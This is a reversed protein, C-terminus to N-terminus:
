VTESLAVLKANPFVKKIEVFGFYHDPHSHTVYVTTLNKGTQKITDVLRRADSLTFQADILIADKDGYILTSTVQFGEPSATYVKWQLKSQATASAVIVLLACLLTLTKSKM